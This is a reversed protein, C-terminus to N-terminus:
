SGPLWCYKWKFGILLQYMYLQALCDFSRDVFHGGLGGLIDGELARFVLLILIGLELRFRYGGVNPPQYVGILILVICFGKCLLRYWRLNAIIVLFECSLGSRLACLATCCCLRQLLLYYLYFLHIM